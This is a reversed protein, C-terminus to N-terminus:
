RRPVATRGGGGGGGGAGGGGGGGGGGGRTYGGTTVRGGSSGGPRRTSTGGSSTNGGRATAGRNGGTRQGVRTYGLGNVVRPAAEPADSIDVDSIRYFPNTGYNYLYPNYGRGWAGYGLPALYYPYLDSYWIPDYYGSWSPGAGWGGWNSWASGSRGGGRNRRQVTFREPYALAVLLDIVGGNIGAADLEKLAAANLDLRPETETLMAEVVRSDVNLAADRIGPFTLASGARVRAQRIEDRSAPLADDDLDDGSAAPTYRRIEMHEREGVTVLQLDVWTSRGSMLSIGSTERAPADEDCRLEAQTYLRFGDSSWTRQEWGSCDGETIDRRVGDAVLTREVLVKGNGRAALQVGPSDGGATPTMCVVTREPFESGDGDARAVQEEWLQWCGLWPLWAADSQAAAAETQGTAVTTAVARDQAASPSALMLSVALTALVTQQMIRM